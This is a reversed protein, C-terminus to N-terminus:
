SALDLKSRYMNINNKYPGNIASSQPLPWKTGFTQRLNADEQEEKALKGECQALMSDGQVKFAAMGNISNQFNAIAGKKQFDEIKTWYMSPIDEVNTLDHYSQPLQYQGYFARLELDAKENEKYKQDIQNQIITKFESQMNRVQPPVIYRFTDNMHPVVLLEANASDDFKVFNKADPMKVQGPPTIPEFFVTKAKDAAMASLQQVQKRKNAYNGRYDAPIAVTIPEMADFLAQAHVATGAAHGM